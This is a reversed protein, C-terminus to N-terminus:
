EVCSQWGCMVCQKCKGQKVSEHGCDPCTFTELTDTNTMQVNQQVKPVNQQVVSRVSDARFLKHGHKEAITKFKDYDISMANSQIM